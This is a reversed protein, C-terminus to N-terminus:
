KEGGSPAPSASPTKSGARILPVRPPADTFRWLDRCPMVPYEHFEPSASGRSSGRAPVGVGAVKAYNMRREVPRQNGLFKPNLPSLAARGSIKYICGLSHLLFIPKTLNKKSM